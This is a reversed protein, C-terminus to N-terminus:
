NNVTFGDSIYKTQVYTNDKPNYWFARKFQYAPPHKIIEMQEGDFRVYSIKTGVPLSSLTKRKKQYEYCQRRWNLAYENKTPSLMKLISIPCKYEYPGMDESMDKYSFNYHDKRNVSTLFVVAFVIREKKPIQEEERTEKNYRKLPMVAAYYVSGVMASKLIEYNESNLGEMFYSDCEAKRDITGDNKYYRAHYSTWGM